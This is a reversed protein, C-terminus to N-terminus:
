RTKIAANYESFHQYGNEDDFFNHFLYDTRLRWPFAIAPTTDRLAYVAYRLAVLARVGSEFYLRLTRFYTGGM